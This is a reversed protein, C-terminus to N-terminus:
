VNKIKREFRAARRTAELQELNDESTYFTPLYPQAQRSGREAEVKLSNDIDDRNKPTKSLYTNYSCHFRSLPIV